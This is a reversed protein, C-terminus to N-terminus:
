CTANFEPNTTATGPQVKIQTAVPGVQAIEPRFNIDFYTISFRPGFTNGRVCINRPVTTLPSAGQYAADGWYSFFIHSTCGNNTFTNGEILGDRAFGIFLGEGHTLCDPGHYNKITNGRIVWNEPVQTAGSDWLEISSDQGNGDFVNNEVRWNDRGWATFQRARSNLVISGHYLNFGGGNNLTVNNFTVNGASATCSGSVTVNQIVAGAVAAAANCQASTM